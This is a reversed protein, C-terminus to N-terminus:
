KNNKNKKNKKNKKNSQNTTIDNANLEGSALKDLLEKPIFKNLYTGVTQETDEYTQKGNNHKNIEGLMMFLPSIDEGSLLMRFVGFYQDAFSQFKEEMTNEFVALNTSKLAKMENTNMCELIEIVRDLINTANPLTKNITDDDDGGLDCVIGGQKEIDKKTVFKQEKINLNM